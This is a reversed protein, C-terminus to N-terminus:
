SKFVPLSQGPAQLESAWNGLSVPEEQRRMRLKPVQPLHQHVQEEAGKQPDLRQNKHKNVVGEGARRQRKHQEGSNSCGLGRSM